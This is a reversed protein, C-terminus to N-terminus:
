LKPLTYIYQFNPRVTLILVARLIAAMMVFIGGSFLILLEIKERIPLRAKFLM